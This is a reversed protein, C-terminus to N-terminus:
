INTVLFIVSISFSFNLLFGKLVQADFRRFGVRLVDNVCMSQAQLADRAAQVSDMCVHLWNAGVAEV